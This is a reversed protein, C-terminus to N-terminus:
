DRAEHERRPELQLAEVPGEAFGGQRLDIESGVQLVRRHLHDRRAVVRSHGDVEVGGRRGPRRRQHARADQKFDRRALRWPRHNKQRDVRIGVPGRNFGVKEHEGGLSGSAEPNRPLGKRREPLQVDGGEACRAEFVLNSRM